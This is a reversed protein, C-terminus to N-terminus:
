DTEVELVQSASLLARQGASQSDLSQVKNVAGWVTNALVNYKVPTQGGDSRVVIEWVKSRPM